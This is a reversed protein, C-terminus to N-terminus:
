GPSSGKGSLCDDVAPQFTDVFPRLWAPVPPARPSDDARGAVLQAELTAGSRYMNLKTVNYSKDIIPRHTWERAAVEERRPGVAVTWWVNESTVQLRLFGDDERKVRAARFAPERAAFRLRAQELRARCSEIGAPWIPRAKGPVSEDGRAAGGLLPLIGCLAVARGIM